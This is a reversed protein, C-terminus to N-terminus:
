GRVRGPAAREYEKILDELKGDETQRKLEEDFSDLLAFCATARSFLFHLTNVAAPWPLLEVKEQASMEEVMREGTRRATVMYDAKDEVLLQVLIKLDDVPYRDIMLNAAAFTEFEEGFTAGFPAVGHLGALDTLGKPRVPLSSRVFVAVEETMVAHSVGFKQLRENTMYAGTLVDIEGNELLTLVRKWPLAPGTQLQVDLTDFIRGALDPFVGKLPSASQERLSVPFWRSSGNLKVTSCAEPAAHAQGEVGIRIFAILFGAWVSRLVNYFRM